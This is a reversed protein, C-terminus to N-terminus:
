IWRKTHKSYNYEDILKLTRNPESVYGKVGDAIYKMQNCFLIYKRSPNENYYCAYAKAIRDDWLPFFNPALLHLAKAVGVPSKMILKTHRLADSEIDGLKSITISIYQKKLGNESDKSFDIAGKIKPNNKISSYVTKLDGADYSINWLKLLGELHKMTYKKKNKDSFRMTDIQLADLFEDFLREIATEDNLSLSHIDRKRFEEITKLNKAICKELKDFDFSGYRYFAQNWTLLLVGLGDTMESSDGWFNSILFTAVKYMADRKEHTEFEQYGRIFEERNPVNMIM